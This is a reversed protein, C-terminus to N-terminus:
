FSNVALSFSWTAWWHIHHTKKFSCFCIIWRNVSNFDHIIFSDHTSCYVFSKFFSLFFSLLTAAFYRLFSHLAFAVSSSYQLSTFFHLVATPLAEYTHISAEKQFNMNGEPPQINRVCLRIPQLNKPAVKM